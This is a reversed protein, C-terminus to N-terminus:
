VHARGIEKEPEYQFVVADQWHYVELFGHHLGVGPVQVKFGTGDSALHDGRRLMNWHEGDIPDLLEAAREVMSVLFSMSLAVGQAGVPLGAPEAPEPM